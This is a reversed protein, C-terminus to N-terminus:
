PFATPTRSLRRQDTAPWTVHFTSGRGVSSTVHISGGAQQVLRSVIALGIGTGEGTSPRDLTFFPRFIRELYENPIGPGTDRVQIRLVEHDDDQDFRVSVEGPASGHHKIANDVLNRIVTSLGVGDLRASVVDTSVRLEIHEPSDVLAFVEKTLTELDHVAATPDAPCSVLYRFLDDLLATMRLSREKISALHEASKPRRAAEDAELFEILARIHRLPSRLDHDAIRVFENLSQNTSTLQANMTAILQERRREDTIDVTAGVLRSTRGPRNSLRSQSRMWRYTGDNMAFRYIWEYTRGPAPEALMRAELERRDDPHFRDILSQIGQWGATAHDHLAAYEESLWLEGTEIDLEWLGVGGARVADSLREQIRELEARANRCDVSLARTKIADSACSGLGLMVDLDSDSWTRPESEIVSLAGVPPGADKFVPVGLYAVIGLGEIGRNGAFRADRRADPVCLPRNNEVVYKAFSYSLPTERTSRWPESLGTASTFYQRDENQLVITVLSMSARTVRRALATLNDFEPAPDHSVLGLDAVACPPISQPPTCM